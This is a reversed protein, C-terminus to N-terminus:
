CVFSDGRASWPGDGAPRAAARHIAACGCGLRRSAHTRASEFCSCAVGRAVKEATAHFSSTSRASSRHTSAHLTRGQRRQRQSDRGPLHVSCSPRRFVCERASKWSTAGSLGRRSACSRASFMCGNGTIAAEDPLAQSPCFGCRNQTLGQKQTSAERRQARLREGRRTDGKVAARTARHSRKQRLANCACGERATWRWRGVAGRRARRRPVCV